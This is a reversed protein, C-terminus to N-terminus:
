VPVSFVDIISIIFIEAMTPNQAMIKTVAAM